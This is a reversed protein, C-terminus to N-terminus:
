HRAANAHSDFNWGCYGFFTTNGQKFSTIRKQMGSLLTAIYIIFGIKLVEAPQFSFGGLSIWRRVSSGQLELGLPTFVLLTLLISFLFIYFAYKRLNRYYLQSFLFLAAGGGIIGFTIQSFAVSSFSAGNRALLGLSASSFVLFGIAVLAITIFLLIRDVGNLM